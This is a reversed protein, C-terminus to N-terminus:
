RPEEQHVAKTLPAHCSSKSCSTLVRLRPMWNRGAVAQPAWGGLDLAQVAYQSQIRNSAFKFCNHLLWQTGPPVKDMKAGDEDNNPMEKRHIGHIALHVQTVAFRGARAILGLGPELKLFISSKASAASASPIPSVVQLNCSGHNGIMEWCFM